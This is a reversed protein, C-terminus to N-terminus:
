RFRRRQRALRESIALGLCLVFQSGTKSHDGYWRNLPARSHYILKREYTGKVRSNNKNEEIGPRWVLHRSAHRADEEENWHRKHETVLSCQIHRTFVSRSRMRRLASLSNGVWRYSCGKTFFDDITDNPYVELFALPKTYLVGPVNYTPSIRRKEGRPM